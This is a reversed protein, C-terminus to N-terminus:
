AAQGRNVGLLFAEVMGTTWTVPRGDALTMQYRRIKGPSRTLSWERVAGLAFARDLEYAAADEDWTGRDWLEGARSRSESM